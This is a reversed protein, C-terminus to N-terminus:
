RLTIRCIPPPIPGQQRFWAIVSTSGALLNPIKSKTRFRHVLNYGIRGLGFYIFANIPAAVWFNYIHVNGSVAVAGILGPFLLSCATMQLAALFANGSLVALSPFCLTGVASTGALASGFVIRKGSTTMRSRLFYSSEGVRVLQYGFSMGRTLDITTILAIECSQM